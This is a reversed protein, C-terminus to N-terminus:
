CGEADNEMILIGPPTDRAVVVVLLAAREPSFYERQQFSTGQSYPGPQCADWGAPEVEGLWAVLNNFDGGPVIFGNEISAHPVAGMPLTIEHPGMGPPAAPPEEAPGCGAIAFLLLVVLGVEIKARQKELRV